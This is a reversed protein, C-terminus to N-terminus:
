FTALLRELRDFNEENAPTAFRRVKECAEACPFTMTFSIETAEPELERFGVEMDFYPQTRRTWAVRREPDVATFVSANEYNGNEPGHMTLTWKGGPWLDFEHITNTFGAPGWWNKLRDPDAFARYVRTVAAALVRSSRIQRPADANTSM